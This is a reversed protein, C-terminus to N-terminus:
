EQYYHLELIGVNPAISVQPEVCLIAHENVTDRVFCRRFTLSKTTVFLNIAKSLTM